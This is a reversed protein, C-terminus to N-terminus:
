EQLGVVRDHTCVREICLIVGKSKGGKGAYSLDFITECMSLKIGMVSTEVLVWYQHLLIQKNPRVAPWHEKQHPVHPLSFLHDSHLDVKKSADINFTLDSTSSLPPTSSSCTPPTSASCTMLNASHKEEGPLLFFIVSIKLFHVILTTPSSQAGEWYIDAIGICTSSTIVEASLAVM